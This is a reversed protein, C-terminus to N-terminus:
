YFLKQNFETRASNHNWNFKKRLWTNTVTTM